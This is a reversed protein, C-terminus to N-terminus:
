VSTIGFLKLVSSVATAVPAALEAVTKAAEILGKGTIRLWDESPHPATVEKVFSELSGSTAQAKPGELKECLRAVQGVLERLLDRVNRSVDPSSAKNFSNQINEATAVDGSFTAGQGLSIKTVNMKAGDKVATVANQILDGEIYYLQQAPQFREQDISAEVKTLIQRRMGQLEKLLILLPIEIRQGERLRVISRASM